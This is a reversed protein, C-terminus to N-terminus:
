PWLEQSDLTTQELVRSRDWVLRYALDGDWDWNRSVYGDSKLVSATAPPATPPKAIRAM